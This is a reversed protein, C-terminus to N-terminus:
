SLAPIHISGTGFTHAIGPACKLTVSDVRSILVTNMTGDRLQIQMENEGPSFRICL